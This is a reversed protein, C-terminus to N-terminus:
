RRVVEYLYTSVEKLKNYIAEAALNHAFENPHSDYKNLFLKKEDYKRYVPLLDLFYFSNEESVEKAFNNAINFSYNNLNNM